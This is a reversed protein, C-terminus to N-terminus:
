HDEVFKKFVEVPKQAWDEQVDVDLGRLINSFYGHLITGRDAATTDKTKEKDNNIWFFRLGPGVHDEQSTSYRVYGNEQYTGTRTDLSVAM